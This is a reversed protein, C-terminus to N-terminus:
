QTDLIDRAIGCLTKASQVFGEDIIAAVLFRLKQSARMLFRVHRHRVAIELNGTLRQQHEAMPGDTKLMRSHRDVVGPAITNRDDHYAPGIEISRCPRRAHRREM